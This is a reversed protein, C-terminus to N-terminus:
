AMRTWRARVRAAVDIAPAPVARAGTDELVHTAVPFTACDFLMVLEDPIFRSRQAYVHRDGYAGQQHVFFRQPTILDLEERARTM